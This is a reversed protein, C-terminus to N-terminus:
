TMCTGLTMIQDDEAITERVMWRLDPFATFMSGPVDALGARGPGQGPLPNQEIFEEAVFENM